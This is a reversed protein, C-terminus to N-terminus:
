DFIKEAYKEFTESVHKRAEQPDLSKVNIWHVYYIKKEPDIDVVVTGPTNTISNAITTIAYDTKVNYPIRVIGPNVPVKPHLIRYIVDLHAKVEAVFFYYIAYALLWFLRAPQALKRPNEVVINATLLGVVIAVALGTVIDYISVSGTFVIYVIFVLAIPGISRALRGM